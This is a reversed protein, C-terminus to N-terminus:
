KLTFLPEAPKNSVVLSHSAKDEVGQKMGTATINKRDGIISVECFSGGKGKADQNWILTMYIKIVPIKSNFELTYEGPEKITGPTVFTSEDTNKISGVEIGKADKVVM